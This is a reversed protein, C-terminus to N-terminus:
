YRRVASRPNRRASLRKASMPKSYAAEPKEKKLKIGKRILPDLAYRLADLCHDNGKVIGPLVDGAKNTKHKYLALEEAVATCRPHVIINFSRIFQIGDEVSGPWKKAAILKPIAPIRDKESQASRGRRVASISEPRSNDARVTHREVGPLDEVWKKATADLELRYERSDHEIYLDKGHIWAKVGATPDSGFGWDVGYYPGDWEVPDPEFDRIFWRGGYVQVKSTKNYHGEWVHLYYETDRDRDERMESLLEETVFPNDSYNVNVVVADDPAGNPGRLFEDVADTEQNPNWSFWVESGPKRITPRLKKLSEKSIDQAEEIWAGDFGELSKISSATSDQMGQFIILGKGGVRYIGTRQCVFLNEAEFKEIKSEILRKVSFRISKQIERICVFCFDPNVICKAVLLEAFFHSKGGGRGGWAGKYRHPDLFPLGWDPIDKLISLLQDKERAVDDESRMLERVFFGLAEDQCSPKNGIGFM